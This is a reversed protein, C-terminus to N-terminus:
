RPKQWPILSDHQFYLSKLKENKKTLFHEGAFWSRRRKPLKWRPEDRWFSTRRQRGNLCPNILGGEIQEAWWTRTSSNLTALSSQFPFLCSWCEVSLACAEWLSSILCLRSQLVDNWNRKILTTWIWIELAVKGLPTKPFIDGYGVTTM